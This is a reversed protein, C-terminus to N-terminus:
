RILTVSSPSVATLFSGDAMQLSLQPQGNSMTITTVTGQQSAGSATSVEVTRGILAVSQTAAQIGLLSDMKDALQQTEEVTSFQAMQAMFEQNDMPKLPDQFSLQTVLVKLFDLQSVSLNNSGSAAATSTATGIADIAM